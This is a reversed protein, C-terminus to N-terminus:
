MGMSFIFFHQGEWTTLSVNNKGAVESFHHLGNAKLLQVRKDTNVGFYTVAPFDPDKKQHLGIIMLGDTLIAHPYPANMQGKVTFGLKKWFAISASLNTVTQAFEGFAGCQKNPYKDATMYDEPKMNLLTTGTPQAFGGLNNSLVVNFGDPSKIYYRKVIDDAKPKQVFVMSDKELQSVIKEVDAAYYTLGIFPTADKRMMILLSGDSVQVWPFPYDNAAIKAFGLKQYVAASSDLNTTTVYVCAVDGAKSQANVMATAVTFFMLLLMLKRM